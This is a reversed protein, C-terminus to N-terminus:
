PAQGASAKKVYEIYDVPLGFQQLSSLGNLIFRLYDDSPAFHKDHAVDALYTHCLYNRGALDSIHVSIRKYANNIGVGSYGEISDLSELDRDSIVYIAGYVRCDAKPRISAVGGLNGKSFRPFCLEHSELYGVAIFKLNLGRNSRRRESLNSGYAFYYDM